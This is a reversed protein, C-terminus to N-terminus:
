LHHLLADHLALVNLNQELVVRQSEKALVTDLSCMKDFAFTLGIFFQYVDLNVTEEEGDAM